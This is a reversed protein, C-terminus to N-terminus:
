HGHYQAVTFWVAVGGLCIIDTHTMNFLIKILVSTKIIASIIQINM